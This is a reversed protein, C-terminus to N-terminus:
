PSALLEQFRIKVYKHESAQSKRDANSVYTVGEGPVFLVNQLNSEESMPQALLETAAIVDYSGFHKAVTERLKDPKGSASMLLTDAIEQGFRVHSGGSWILEFGQSNMAIGLAKNSKGDTLVCFADGTAPNEQCLDAVEEMTSCQELALRLLISAPIGDWHPTGTIRVHTASLYADNMGSFCGTLGAFGVSIFPKKGDPAVIFVTACDHLGASGMGDLARGHYCSGDTTASGTLAFSSHMMLESFVNLTDILEIPQGVATALALKEAQFGEPIHPKMKSVAIDLDAKLWQGYTMAHLLGHTHLMSDICATVEFGVLEGHAKGIQEPTGRLVVVRQGDLWLLKGNEVERPETSPAAFLAGPMVIETARRIGRVLTRELEVRDLEQITFNPWDNLGPLPATLESVGARMKMGSVTASVQGPMTVKIQMESVKLSKGENEIKAGMSSQAMKLVVQPQLSLMMPAFRGIACHSSILRLALGDFNCHDELSTEGTGVFVMRHKPLALATGEPRRRVTMAYTDHVISIDFQPGDRYIDVLMDQPRGDIPVQLVARLWFKQNRGSAADLLAAM